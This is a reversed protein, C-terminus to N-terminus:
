LTQTIEEPTIVLAARMWPFRKKMLEFDPGQDAFAATGRIFFGTGLSNRGMVQRAGLTVLVRNDKSLNEETTRMRGAPALLDGKDNLTIYSNWTNIVHPGETGQTVVAVVGEHQLVELMKEPIM